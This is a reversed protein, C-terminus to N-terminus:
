KLNTIIRTSSYTTNRVTLYYTGGPVEDLFLYIAQDGPQYKQMLLQVGLANLLIVEGSAGPQARHVEKM